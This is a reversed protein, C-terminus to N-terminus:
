TGTSGDHSGRPRRRLGTLCANTKGFDVAVGWEIGLAEMYSLGRNISFQVNDFLATFAVLISDEVVICDLPSDDVEVGHYFAKSVPNQTFTLGQEAIACCILREFVEDGYGTGHLDYLNRLVDRVARGVKRREGVIEGTWYGWEEVVNTDTPSYVVREDQVRDLGMNVLFGVKDERFKLYDFIQVFDGRSFTRPLAKLEITICDWVVFDPFLVYAERDGIMLRHPPKSAFPVDHQQLWIKCANHYAAEQRGLGVENQVDFFMGKLLSTRDAYILDMVCKRSESIRPVVIDDATFEVVSPM